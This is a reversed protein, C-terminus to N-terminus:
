KNAILKKAIEDLQKDIKGDSVYTLADEELRKLNDVTANDM